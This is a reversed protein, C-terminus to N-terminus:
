EADIEKVVSITTLVLGALRNCIAHLEGFDTIFMSPVVAQFHSDYTGGDPHPWVASGATYGASVRHAVVKDAVLLAHDLRPADEGLWKRASQLTVGIANGHTTGRLGSRGKLCRRLSILGSERLAVTMEHPMEPVWRDLRPSDSLQDFCVSAHQLDNMQGNLAVLRGDPVPKTM